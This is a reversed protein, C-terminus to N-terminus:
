ILTHSCATIAESIKGSPPDHLNLLITNTMLKNDGVAYKWIATFTNYKYTRAKVVFM